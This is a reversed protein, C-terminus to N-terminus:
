RFDSSDRSRRRIAAAAAADGIQDGHQAYRISYRPCHPLRPDLHQFVSVKSSKCPRSSCVPPSQYHRPRLGGALLSFIVLFCTGLRSNWPYVGQSPLFRRSVSFCPM